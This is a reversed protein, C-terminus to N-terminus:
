KGGSSIWPPVTPQATIRDRAEEEDFSASCNKHLQVVNGTRLMRQLGTIPHGYADVLKGGCQWCFSAM